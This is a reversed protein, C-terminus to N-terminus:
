PVTERPPNKKPRLEAVVEEWPQEDDPNRALDELRERLIERQWNPIVLYRSEGEPRRQRARVRPPGSGEDM